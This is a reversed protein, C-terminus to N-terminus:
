LVYKKLLRLGVEGSKEPHFQYGIINKEGIAACINSNGYRVTALVNEKREAKCEYSHVFYVEKGEFSSDIISNDFSGTNRKLANWGIHPVRMLKGEDSVAQIKKVKGKILGLGECKENEESEELLMQMGLCIGLIPHGKQAVEEIAKDLEYKKLAEMGKPFAGVGPLIVKEACLVERYRKTVCFEAGCWEIARKVSMLNGAGYDIITIM